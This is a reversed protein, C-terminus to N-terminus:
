KVAHIGNGPLLVKVVLVQKVGSDSGKRSLSTSEKRKDEQSDEVLFEEEKKKINPTPTQRCEGCGKLFVNQSM